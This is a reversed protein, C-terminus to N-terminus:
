MCISKEIKTDVLEPRVLVNCTAFCYSEFAETCIHMQLGKVHVQM